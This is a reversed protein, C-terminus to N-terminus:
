SGGEAIRGVLVSASVREILVPALTGALAPDGPFHVLRNGPTRGMLRLGKKDPGEVLVEQVSGLLAHNRRLSQAGLLALLAKNRRDKEEPPVQGPMTAAPTGSRTSYRFVYAMDFDVREFVACTERFDEETEGPFGVIIDTSFVMGPVAAKLRDALALFSRQTYPRNMARLIRDSGSQLPLHVCPCLKPLARFAEVL